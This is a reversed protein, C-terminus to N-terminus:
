KVINELRVDKLFFADETIEINMENLENDM